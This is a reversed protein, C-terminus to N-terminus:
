TSPLSYIGCISKLCRDEYERRAMSIIDWVTPDVDPQGILSELKKIKQPNDSRYINRAAAMNENYQSAPMRPAECEPVKSIRPM